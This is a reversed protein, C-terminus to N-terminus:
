LNTLPQQYDADAFNRPPSPKARRNLAGSGSAPPAKPEDLWRKHAYDPWSVVTRGCGDRWGVSQMHLFERRAFDAPIGRDKAAAIAQDLSSPLSITRQIEPDKKPTSEMPSVEDANGEFPHGQRKLPTPFQSISPGTDSSSPHEKWFTPLTLRYVTTFGPRIEAVLMGRELLERIAKRVTQPHLRCVEGITGVAPWAGEIGDRRALHAYVRFVSPSLGLEDLTSHVFIPRGPLAQVERHHNKSENMANTM